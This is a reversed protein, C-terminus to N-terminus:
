SETEEPEVAKEPPPPTKRAPREACRFRALNVRQAVLKRVVAQQNEVPENANVV